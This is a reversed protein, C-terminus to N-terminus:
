SLSGSPGAPRPCTEPSSPTGAILGAPSVFM